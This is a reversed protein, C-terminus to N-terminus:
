KLGWRTTYLAAHCTVLGAAEVRLLSGNTMFFGLPQKTDAHGESNLHCAQFTPLDLGHPCLSIHGMKKAIVSFICEDDIFVRVKGTVGDVEIGEVFVADSISCQVPKGPILTYLGEFALAYATLATPDVLAVRNPWNKGVASQLRTQEAAEMLDVMGDLIKSYGSPESSEKRLRELEKQLEQTNM